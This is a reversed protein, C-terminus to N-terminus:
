LRERPSGGSLVTVVSEMIFIDKEVWRRKVTLMVSATMGIALGVVTTTFAIVLDAALRSMDGTGISALGTGLPILTGMLGLSPGLRVLVHLPDLSRKRLLSEYSGIADMTEDKADTEKLLLKKVRDVVAEVRHPFRLHPENQLLANKLNEPLIKSSRRRDWAEATMAGADVLVWVFCVVLLVLTPLLLSSSLFYIISAFFSSLSSM